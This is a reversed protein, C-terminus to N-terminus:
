FKVCAILLIHAKTHNWFRWFNLFLLQFFLIPEKLLQIEKHRNWHIMRPRPAYNLLSGESALMGNGGCYKDVRGEVTQKRKTECLMYRFRHTHTLTPSHLHMHFLLKFINLLTPCDIFYTSLSIFSFCWSSDYGM